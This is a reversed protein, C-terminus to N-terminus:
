ASIDVKRLGPALLVMLVLATLYATSAIVLLMSYSGTSQLVYGAFLAILFGGLAGAMGGIGTVSGVENRPFMDSVTTFINASWGQHSATALSFLAIAVWESHTYNALLIPTVTCACLLMATLRASGSKMGMKVFPAPLWGGVIGGVTSANYVVFLPLWLHALDVNFNTSFYKPMWFLYFWWVPDTLFKGIAFAWTQRFTLLKLWPMSPRVVEAPDQNIYRLEAAGLRKNEEPKTYTFYWLVIWSASFIGTLLFAAHWGFHVAVWPVAIPAVIAGVNTGSNFIGTALSRDKQPFWEAVTKIAAPFNGSEGMGLFARAIGFELVTNALAHGMASLSWIAMIIMYGIRTGVRDVFRGVGLMSVMYTFQFAMVVYSYGAESMGISHQITPALIAIVQRDMYNISTAIFLMACITWRVSGIREGVTPETTLAGSNTSGEM